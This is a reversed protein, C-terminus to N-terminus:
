GNCFDYIGHNYSNCYCCLRFGVFVWCIYNHNTSKKARSVFFSGPQCGVIGGLIAGFVGFWLYSDVDIQWLWAGLALACGIIFIWEVGAILGGNTAGNIGGVVAGINAATLGFMLMAIFSVLIIETIMDLVSFGKTLSSYGVFVGVPVPIIIVGCISGFFLGSIAKVLYTDMSQINALNSLSGHIM